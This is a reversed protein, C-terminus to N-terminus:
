RRNRSARARTPGLEGGALPQREGASPVAGMSALERVVLVAQLGARAARGQQFIEDQALLDEMEVVLADGFADHVRAPRGRMAIEFACSGIGSSVLRRRNWCSPCSARRDEGAERGHGAARARDVRGAVHAAERHFEVGILAVPIQDAVVDRDEEDLVRDLEGVQDMRHLHLGVAAIRLRRRGVVGEPVEDRRIGSVMWMSMHAIDSRVMGRESRMISPKPTWVKRSIL